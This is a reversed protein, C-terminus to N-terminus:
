HVTGSPKLRGSAERMRRVRAVVEAETLAGPKICALLMDGPGAIWEPHEDRFLDLAKRTAAEPDAARVHYYVPVGAADAPAYPFAVTFEL